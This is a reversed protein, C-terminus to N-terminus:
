QSGAYEIQIDFDAIEADGYWGLYFRQFRSASTFDFYGTPAMPLPGMIPNRPQSLVTDALVTLKAGSALLPQTPGQLFNPRARQIRYVNEGDGFDGTQIFAPLTSNWLGDMLNLTHTTDVLATYQTPNGSFLSSGYIVAPLNQYKQFTNQFQAWTWPQSAFLGEVPLDINIRGHM